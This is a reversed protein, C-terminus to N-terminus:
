SNLKGINECTGKVLFLIDDITNAGWFDRSDLSMPLNFSLELVKM